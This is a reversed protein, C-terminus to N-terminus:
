IEEVDKAINVNYNYHLLLWKDSNLVGDFLNQFDIM